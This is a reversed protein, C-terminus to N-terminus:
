QRFSGRSACCRPACPGDSCALKRFHAVLEAASAFKLTAPASDDVIEFSPTPTNAAARALLHVVAGEANVYALAIDSPRLSAFRVVFTGPARALLHRDAAQMSMYGFFWPEALLTAVAVICDDDFAPGFARCLASFQTALVVGAASPDLAQRLVPRHPVIGAGLAARAAHWFEGWAVLMTDAGVLDSWARLESIRDVPSRLQVGNHMLRLAAAAGLADVRRSLRLECLSKKVNTSYPASRLLQVADSLVAAIASSESQPLSSTPSTPSTTSTTTSSQDLTFLAIQLATAQQPPVNVLIARVLLFLLQKNFSFFFLFSFLNKKKKTSKRETYL